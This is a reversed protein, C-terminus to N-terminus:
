VCHAWNADQVAPLVYLHHLLMAFAEAGIFIFGIDWGQSGVEAASM